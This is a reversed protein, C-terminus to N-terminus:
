KKSIDPVGKLLKQLLVIADNRRLSNHHHENDYSRLCAYCSSDLGCTCNEALRLASQALEVLNRRMYRVHGAGGPVSDFFVMSLEYKDRAIEGSVDKSAIGISPLVAVLAAVTSRAEGESFETEPKLEIVDTLFEHGFAKLTLQSRCDGSGNPRKHTNQTKKKGAPPTSAFGCTRCVQFRSYSQGRNIVTVKGQRSFRTQVRVGGLDNPTFEPPESQYAGFYYEAYGSKRPRAEGPKESMAEGIFGFDPIIFSVTEIKQSKCSRCEEPADGLISSTSGCDKCRIFCRNLLQRGPPVNLGKGTWLKKNAVVQSDPAYEVIATRLDRSLEIQSAASDGSRWVDLERVDVPFGYKPLVVRQALFSILKKGTLTEKEKILAMRRSNAPREKDHRGEAQFKSMLEWTDNIEKTLSGAETEIERAARLLWGTNEQADDETFLDNVWKWSSVGIEDDLNWEDDASPVPLIRLLSANLESPKNYLWDKFTTYTSVEGDNALFFDKIEISAEFGNAVREREFAAFAVAHLHRRVLASNGLTVVPTSVQGEVMSEPNNFFYLDHSRRQAFSVVLPAAGQRRGARGARQVYNAPTPPINRMMVAQVPGVDVGLEFTTSCSLINVRAHLFDEQIKAAYKASLQATHEEVQAGILSLDEYLRRYHDNSRNEPVEPQLFGPCKFTPCVASVSRWWVQQCTSCKFPVRSKTGRSFAIWDENLNFVVGRTRDDVSQLVKAWASGPAAFWNVWLARLFETPDIELSRASLLKTVYDLRSNVGRTPMWSMVGYESGDCRVFTVINRPAFMEDKIDVDSPLNVAAQLRLSGLLVRALDLAEEDSFGRQTLYPPVVVERPIAVTIEALGVGDLSQRRDVSLVERLLWTRVIGDNKAPGGDPDIIFNDEARRRLQAVLDNFRMEDHPGESLLSWILRRQISRLYTRELYPAFFAADQRSDSFSLLRRGQGVLKRESADESVPLAQYLATAIVAPPADQFTIYRMVISGMLRGKCSLCKRMPSSATTEKSMLVSIHKKSACTCGPHSEGISGCGSCLVRGGDEIDFAQEFLADEDEDQAELQASLESMLLYRNVTIGRAPVAKFISKGEEEAISGLLYAVGCKRCGGIEFLQSESECSPCKSHRELFIRPRNSDHLPSICAFVGEIARLFLHYRAPILSSGHRAMAVTGIEVAAALSELSIDLTEALVSTSKAGGELETLISNYTKEKELYRGLLEPITLDVGDILKRQREQFFSQLASSDTVERLLDRLVLFESQDLEWEGDGERLPLRKAAVVDQRNPEDSYEFLEDFITRGFQALEPYDEEGRGLTASTGVCQLIGKTSSAVRDRVRRLLMAIEAGQAGDYVHIEDLVIQKWHGSTSGDFFPTDTPRLLLYELMAYNTLLLHPPTSRMRERSLMENPLPDSKFRSRYDSLGRGEDEESEGIMRGFTIDPFQELIDRIRKMQDNALANMPYLLMARVGPEALTGSDRERLLSDIIPLLFSETKGSGTGTAIILNRGQCSKRIALEQHAYLPRNSPLVNQNTELFASHLVGEEVLAAISLGQVYPPTAQLIPGKAIVSQNHLADHIGTRYELDKLWFTSELYQRYSDEISRAASIPDFISKNSM